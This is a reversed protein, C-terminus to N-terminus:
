VTKIGELLQDTPPVCVAPEPEHEISHAQAYAVMSGPQVMPMDSDQQLEVRRTGQPQSRAENTNVPDNSAQGTANSASFLMIPYVM